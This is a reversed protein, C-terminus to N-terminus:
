VAERWPAGTVVNGSSLRWGRGIQANEIWINRNNEGFDFDIMANQTFVAPNPKIKKHMILRQDYVKNQIALTSSIMEGTTDYHYFEGGELPLIKVTLGNIERDECSPNNGLALGFHSYLDYFQLGGDEGYSRDRLLQVARDSLLWVGIDMLFFHSQSLRELENLSPKQIMKDLEDPADRRAAFVGHRTALSSDVWLGYCIVDAEPIEQLPKDTHIYVDGSVILTRLSEPSQSMIREYLPLQLSLLDQSLRQGRAWRFVPIPLSVKGAVAYAPLRRSQGGAHILIRKEASLWDM